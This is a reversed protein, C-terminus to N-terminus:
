IQINFENVSSYWVEGLNQESFYSFQKVFILCLKDAM